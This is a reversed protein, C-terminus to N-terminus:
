LTLNLVPRVPSVESTEVRCKWRDDVSLGSITDGDAIVDGEKVLFAAADYLVKALANPEVRSTVCQLDLLGLPALGVTDMLVTGDAMDVVRFLRVNVLAALPDKAVREVAVMHPTRANWIAVPRFLDIVLSLAAHFAEVRESALGNQSQQEAVVIRRKVSQAIQGAQEFGWTQSLDVPSTPAPNPPTMVLTVRPSSSEHFLQFDRDSSRLVAMNVAEARSSIEIDTPEQISQSVLMEVILASREISHTPANMTVQQKAVPLARGENPEVASGEPLRWVLLECGRM